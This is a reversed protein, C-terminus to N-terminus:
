RAAPGLPPYAGRSARMRIRLLDILLRLGDGLVRVTSADSDAAELPLERLTLKNREVLHLIEIDFAFRDVTGASALFRGVDRRFAKCGCQTDGYRGKLVIRASLNVIRSGVERALPRDGTAGGRKRRSGIAVDCGQEIAELLGLLRSPAYALDADTFAVVRGSATRLGSRIAAGKGLNRTHVVVQDAGAEEAARATADPSGDDVVIVELADVASLQRRIESVTAAIRGEEGHAPVVVSL